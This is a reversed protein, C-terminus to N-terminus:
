IRGEDTESGGNCQLHQKGKNKWKTWQDIMRRL